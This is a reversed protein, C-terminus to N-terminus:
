LYRIQTRVKPGVKRRKFARTKWSSISYEGGGDMSKPGIKSQCRQSWLYYDIMPIPSVISSFIVVGWYILVEVCAHVTVNEVLNLIIVSSWIDSKGSSNIVVRRWAFCICHFFWSSICWCLLDTVSYREINHFYLLFMFAFRLTIDRAYTTHQVTYHM